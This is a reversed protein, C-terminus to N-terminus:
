NVEDIAEMLAATIRNREINAEVYGIIGQREKTNLRNLQASLLLVTNHAEGNQQETLDLLRNFVETTKGKALLQKLEWKVGSSAPKNNKKAVADAYYNNNVITQGQQIDDGLRFDRGAKITSGKIINKEDYNDGSFSGKDGIHVGGQVEINVDDVVNKIRAKQQELSDLKEKLEQMFKPNEQLDELKTEIITKKSENSRNPDQLKAKTKPDDILFWTRIWEMSTTVFDKPFQKIEENETVINVIYDLAKQLIAM